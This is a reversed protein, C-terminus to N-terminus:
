CSLSKNEVKDYKRSVHKTPTFIAKCEDLMRCFSQSPYKQACFKRPLTHVYLSVCRCWVTCSVFPMRLTSICYFISWCFKDSLITLITEKYEVSDKNQARICLLTDSHADYKRALIGHWRLLMSREMVESSLEIIHLHWNLHVCQLSCRPITSRATM